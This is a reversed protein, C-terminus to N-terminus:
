PRSALMFFRSGEDEMNREFSEENDRVQFLKGKTRSLDELFLDLGDEGFLCWTKKCRLNVKVLQRMGHRDICLDEDAGNKYHKKSLTSLLKERIRFLHKDEADIKVVAKTLSRLSVFGTGEEIVVEKLTHFHSGETRIALTTLTLM